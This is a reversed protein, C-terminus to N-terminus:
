IITHWAQWGGLFRRFAINDARLNYAVQIATSDSGDAYWHNIVIMDNDGSTAFAPLAGSNAGFIRVRKFALNADMAGGRQM